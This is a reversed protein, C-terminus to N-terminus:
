ASRPDGQDRARMERLVTDLERLAHWHWPDPFAMWRRQRVRALAAGASIGEILMLTAACLTPARNVGAICHVLVRAGTRLLREVMLADQLLTTATYGFPGEGRPRWIDIPRCVEPLDPRDCLNVIADVAPRAPLLRRRHGTRERGGVFLRRRELRGDLWIDVPHGGYRRIWGRGLFGAWEVGGPEDTQVIWAADAARGAAAADEEQRGQIQGM